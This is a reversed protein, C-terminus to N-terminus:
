QYCIIAYLICIMTGISFLLLKKFFKSMPRFLIDKKMYYVHYLTRYTMAVITGITVGIIGLKPVLIISLVINIIAEIYAAYKISKFKNASYALNVFPYRIVYIAEAIMLLAGFLPQHYNVDVIKKTYIMVFPTILLGGITFLSFVLIFYLYEYFDFKENLENQDGKAYLHGLSPAVGTSFASILKKLGTSVLSYVSYVSVVKLNAFLTLITIDTNNHIFAALNISFGDWRSKLLNNDKKATKDITFYKKVVKSYIVPQLIYVIASMLKILHINPLKKILLAFVLTDIVILFIQTLSVIYVKKDANLLTRLTLSFNYQVFLKISLILTLTMVYTYSFSTKFIFPYSFALICSYIVFILAIKNYFSKTTKVISSIKENDKNVIPKYLNAMIVSTIGGEVLSIYGLFQTLSSVLGNVESGFTGLILRPIIFGSIITVFQLLVSTLANFMTINNKVKNKM